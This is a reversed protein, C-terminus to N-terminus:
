RMREAAVVTNRLLCAVTMPGVGGPVPTLASAVDQVADFDVDGVIAGTSTRHLGVDVVVAGRKVMDATIFRPSGVAAVLIDAEKTFEALHPTKSHCMTVTADRNLLMAGAPKGVINSRGVIVAHKGAIPVRYHELLALIGAPTAPPLYETEKGLVVNGVNQAHFGDADKRPDISRIVIPLAKALHAPLPLQVIFGSVDPDANLKSVEQLLAEQTCDEPLHHTECRIAIEACATEKQRIYIESAAHFGVQVIVLHPKAARARAALQQQMRSAPEKGSLLLM